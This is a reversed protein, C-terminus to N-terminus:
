ARAKKGCKKQNPTRIELNKITNITYYTPIQGKPKKNQKILYSNRSIMNQTSFYASLTLKRHSLPKQGMRSSSKASSGNGSQLVAAM